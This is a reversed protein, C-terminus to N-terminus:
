YNDISWTLFFLLLLYTCVEKINMGMGDALFLPLEVLLMYWGVNNLTHGVIIAWVPGSTLISRWPVAASKKKIGQFTRSFNPFHNLRVSSSCLVGGWQGAAAAAAAATAWIKGDRGGGHIQQGRPLWLHSCDLSPVLDPRPRRSCLLRVGLWCLQGSIWHHPHFHCNGFCHRFDLPLSPFLTIPQAFKGSYTGFISDKMLFHKSSCQIKINCWQSKFRKGGLILSTLLTKEDKIAWKSMLVNMAPFTVGAGLGQILRMLM